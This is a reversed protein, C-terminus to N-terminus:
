RTKTAESSPIGAQVATPFSGEKTLKEIERSTKHESWYKAMPAACGPATAALAIALAWRTM